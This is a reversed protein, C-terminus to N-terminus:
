WDCVRGADPRFDTAENSEGEFFKIAGKMSERRYFAFITPMKTIGVWEKVRVQGQNGGDAHVYIFSSGFRKGVEELVAKNITSSSTDDYLFLGNVQKSYIKKYVSLTFYNVPNVHSSPNPTPNITNLLSNTWLLINSLTYDKSYDIMYSGIKAKISPVGTINYKDIVTLANNADVNAFKIKSSLNPATLEFTETAKTSYSSWEAKFNMILNTNEYQNFNSDTIEILNSQRLKSSTTLAFLALCLAIILIKNM